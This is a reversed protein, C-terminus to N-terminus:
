RTPPFGDSPLELYIINLTRLKILALFYEFISVCM